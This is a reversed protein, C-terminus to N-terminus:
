RVKVLIGERNADDGGDGVPNDVDNDEDANDAGRLGLEVFEDVEERDNLKERLLTAADVADNEDNEDISNGPDADGRVGSLCNIKFVTAPISAYLSFVSDM